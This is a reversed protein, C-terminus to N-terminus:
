CVTSIYTLVDQRETENQRPPMMPNPTASITKDKYAAFVWAFASTSKDPLHTIIYIDQWCQFMKVLVKPTDLNDGPGPCIQSHHVCSHRNYQEHQQRQFHQRNSCLSPTTDSGLELLLYQRWGHCCSWCM